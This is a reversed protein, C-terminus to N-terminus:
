NGAALEERYVLEWGNYVLVLCKLMVQTAMAVARADARYKRLQAEAATVVEALRAATFKERPIYKLEILYGYAVNPYRALFPELYIDVFGGGLERESWTLYHNTANLYALMFGQIIKEGGLYDRVSTQTAIAEALFDFVPRWEGQYALAGMRKGFQWLDLRFVNVDAFGDRLYSYLLERVTLNPIRLVPTDDQMGDFTLLGLYFLLSAFNEHNLLQEVPFSTVVESATAGQVIIERLLSFNGNLQRDVTLLHRLKTYDTRINTDILNDPIGGRRGAQKVFHWVMDANFVHTPAAKAFRYGDYWPQMVALAADMALPLQEAAQYYSLVARVEDETFGLLENFAPELSLNDGINFGSTVDELTIPSVGTMFLRGLGGIRGTTASKLLNFFYRFFGAGHTLDRYAGEGATTLITNAFNDYEDILLYLQLGKMSMRILLEQLRSTTDSFAMIESLEQPDFFAAYRRLFNGMISKGHNEFSEQVQRVDPNVASFNFTLTLYSNREPTPHAGIWTDGFLAAFTERENVDYYYDLLSLWLSKGFRRPRIFILYYPAAEILPLFRTKDVYYMNDQKMRRYDAIGYPIRKTAQPM